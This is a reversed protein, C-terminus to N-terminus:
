CFSTFACVVVVVDDFNRAFTKDQSDGVDALSIHGIHEVLVKEFLHFLAVGLVKRYYEGGVCSHTAAVDCAVVRGHLVADSSDVVAVHCLKAGAVVIQSEAVYVLRLIHMGSFMIYSVAASWQRYAKVFTKFVAYSHHFYFVVAFLGYVLGEFYAIRM